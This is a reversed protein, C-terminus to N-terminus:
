NFMLFKLLEILFIMTCAYFCASMGLLIREMFKFRIPAEGIEDQYKLHIYRHILKRRDSRVDLGSEM